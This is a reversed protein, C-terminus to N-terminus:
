GAAVPAPNMQQNYMNYYPPLVNVVTQGPIGGMMQPPISQAQMQPQIPPAAQEPAPQPTDVAPNASAVPQAPTEAAQTAELMVSVFKKAMIPDNPFFGANNTLQKLAGDYKSRIGFGFTRMAFLEVAGYRGVFFPQGERLMEYILANIDYSSLIDKDKRYYERIRQHSTKNANIRMKSYLYGFTLLNHM